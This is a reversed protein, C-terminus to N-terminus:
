KEGRGREDLAFRACGLDTLASFGRCPSTGDLRRACCGCRPEAEGVPDVVLTGEPGGPVGRKGKHGVPDGHEGNPGVFGGGDYPEPVSVSADQEVLSKLFCASCLGNALRDEEALEGTEFTPETAGELYWATASEWGCGECKFEREMRKRLIRM